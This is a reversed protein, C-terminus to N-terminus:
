IDDWRGAAAYMNSLLVYPAANDSDLEFTHKAVSEGLEVNNHVKCAVLLCGWVNADPKIPM